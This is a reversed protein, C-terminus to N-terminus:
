VGSTLPSHVHAVIASRVAYKPHRQPREKDHGKHKEDGTPTLTEAFLGDVAVGIQGRYGGRLLTDM